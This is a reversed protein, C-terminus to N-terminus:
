AVRVQMLIDTKSRGVNVRDNGHLFSLPMNKINDLYTFARKAVKQCSRAAIWCFTRYLIKMQPCGLSFRVVHWVLRGTGVRTHQRVEYIRGKCTFMNPTFCDRKNIMSRPSGALGFDAFTWIAVTAPAYVEYVVHM